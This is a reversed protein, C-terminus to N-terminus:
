LWNDNWLLTYWLLVTDNAWKSLGEVIVSLLKDTTETKCEELLNANVSNM